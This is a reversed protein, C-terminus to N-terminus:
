TPPMHMAASSSESSFLACLTHETRAFSLCAPLCAPPAHMGCPAARARAHRTPPRRGIWAMDIAHWVYRASSVIARRAAIMIGHAKSGHRRATGHGCSCGPRAVGQRAMQGHQTCAACPQRMGVGVVHGDWWVCFSRRPDTPVSDMSSTVSPCNADLVKSRFPHTHPRAHIRTCARTRTTHYILHPTTHHGHVADREPLERTWCRRASRTRTRAHM